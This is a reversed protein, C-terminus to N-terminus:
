SPIPKSWFRAIVGGILLGLGVALAFLGWQSAQLSSQLYMRQFGAEHLETTAEALLHWRHAQLLFSAGVLVTVLGVQVMRLGAPISVHAAESMQPPALLTHGADTNAFDLFEQATGFKDLLRNRTDLHLRLADAGRSMKKYLFWTVLGAILFLISVLFVADSM